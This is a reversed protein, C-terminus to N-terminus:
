SRVGNGHATYTKCRRTENRTEHRRTGQMGQMGQMGQLLDLVQQLAARRRSGLFRVLQLHTLVTNTTALVSLLKEAAAQM